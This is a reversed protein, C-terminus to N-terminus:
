ASQGSKDLEVLALFLASVTGIVTFYVGVDFVLATSLPLTVGMNPFWWLHTLYAQGPALLAPLGSALAVLVGIACWSVPSLRLVRRAADPGRAIAFFLIGGAALLGGIFGGGPDNHGRVLVYLSVFIPVWLLLPASTRLILSPNM